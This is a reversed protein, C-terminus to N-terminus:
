GPGSGPTRAWPTAARARARTTRRRPRARAPRRGVEAPLDPRADRARRVRRAPEAALAHGAPVVEALVEAVVPQVVLVPVVGVAGVRLVDHVRHAADERHGVREGVLLRRHEVRRRDRQVRDLAAAVRRAVGDDDDARAHHPQEDRLARPREAGAPHDHDPRPARSALAASSPWSVTSKVAPSGTAATRSIVPPSPGSTASSHEPSAAASPWHTAISRLPPRTATIPIGCSSAAIGSCRRPARRSRSRRRARRPPRSAPSRDAEHGRAPHPQALEDRVREREVLEGLGVRREGLADVARQLDDDGTVALTGCHLSRRTKQEQAIVPPM